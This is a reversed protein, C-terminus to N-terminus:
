MFCIIIITNPFYVKQWIWFGISRCVRPSSSIPLNMSIDCTSLHSIANLYVQHSKENFSNYQDIDSKNWSNLFVTICFCRYPFNPMVYIWILIQCKWKIWTISLVHLVVKIYITVPRGGRTIVCGHIHSREAMHLLVISAERWRPYPAMDSPIQHWMEMCCPPRTQTLHGSKIQGRFVLIYHQRSVYPVLWGTTHADWCFPSRSLKCMHRGNIFYVMFLISIHM